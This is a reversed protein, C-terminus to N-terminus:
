FLYFNFRYDIIFLKTQQQLYYNIIRGRFLNLFFYECYDTSSRAVALCYYKYVKLIRLFIKYRWYCSKNENNYKYCPISLHYTSHLYFQIKIHNKSTIFNDQQMFHNIHVIRNNLQKLLLWFSDQGGSFALLQSQLIM